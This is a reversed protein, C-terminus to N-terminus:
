REGVRRRVVQELHDVMDDISMRSTDVVVAGEPVRLPAVSRSRDSDDRRRIEQLVQDRTPAGGRADLEKRRRDARVQDSADLYVKVDAEPFVVTGQDRGESVLDGWQCAIRRQAEVLCARVRENSAAHHTQRSIENERIAATVDRGDLLVRVAEPRPELDIRVERAVHALAEADALDAGRQIAALTVARYMAGTDLYAVGLREALLRAATSKGSGAPGDITVIM